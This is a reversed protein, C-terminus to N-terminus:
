LSSLEEEKKPNKVTPMAWYGYSTVWEEDVKPPPPLWLIMLIGSVVWLATSAIGCNYGSGSQCEGVYRTRIAWGADEFVQLVPNNTCISSQIVLLTLGQFIGACVMMTGYAKWLCRNRRRGFPYLCICVVCVGGVAVAIVAFAQVARTMADIDYEFGLEDTLDQYSRCTDVLWGNSSATTTTTNTNTTANTGTGSNMADIYFLRLRYSFPGTHLNGYGRDGDRTQEFQITDCSFNQMWGLVMAAAASIAPFFSLLSYKYHHTPM